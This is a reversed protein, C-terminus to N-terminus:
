VWVAASMAGDAVGGRPLAGLGDAPPESSEPRGHQNEGTDALLDAPRLLQPLPFDNVLVLALRRGRVPSALHGEITRQYAGLAERETEASRHGVRAALSRLEELMRERERNADESLRAVFSSIQTEISRQGEM